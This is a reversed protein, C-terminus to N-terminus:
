FNFGLSLNVGSSDNNGTFHTKSYVFSLGLDFKKISYGLTSCVFIGWKDDNSHNNSHLYAGAKCDIFPTNTKYKFLSYRAQLYFPIGIRDGRKIYQIGSGFGAFWNGTINKGASILAMVDYDDKEDEVSYPFYDIPIEYRDKENGASFAFHAAWGKRAVTKNAYSDKIKNQSSTNNDGSKSNNCYIVKAGRFVPNCWVSDHVSRFNTYSATRGSVTIKTVKSAFLGRRKEVIYQPELLLDADGSEKLAQAEVAKKINDLGGRRIEKSVDMTTTVREGVKLDALTASKTDSSISTTTATKKITDCSSLTFLVLTFFCFLQKKM